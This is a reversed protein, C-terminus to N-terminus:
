FDLLFNSSIRVSFVLFVCVFIDHLSWFIKFFVLNVHKMLIYATVDDATSGYVVVTTYNGNDVPVTVVFVVVTVFM